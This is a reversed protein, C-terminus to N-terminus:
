TDDRVFHPIERDFLLRGAIIAYFSDSFEPIRKGGEKRRM